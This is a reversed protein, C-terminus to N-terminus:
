GVLRREIQKRPFRGDIRNIWLAIMTIFVMYLGIALWTPVSWDKLLVIVFLFPFHILFLPFSLDSLVVVPRTMPLSFGFWFQRPLVTALYIGLGFEFVRCLPFWDTPRGPMFGFQRYAWGKLQDYLSADFFSLGEQGVYWRSAVSVGLLVALTIHPQRKMLYILPLTVAYLAMILGIFWSPPNYPGGWLGFWAYFGTVSGGLDTAFGNPFLEPLHGNLLLSALLTGVVAILVSMLYLPYIRLIKKILYTLYGINRNGDTLGALIGSLVLFLSVGVGGWSVYYFNKIGFFDGAPHGLLQGFHAVFVLSIAFIRLLDLLLSRNM